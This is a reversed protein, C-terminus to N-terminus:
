AGVLEDVGDKACKEVIPILKSEILTRLDRIDDNLSAAATPSQDDGELSRRRKMSTLCSFDCQEFTSYKRPCANERESARAGDGHLGSALGLDDHPSGYTSLDADGRYCQAGGEQVVAPSQRWGQGLFHEKLGDLLENVLLVIPEAEVLPLLPLPSAGLEATPSTCAAMRGHM